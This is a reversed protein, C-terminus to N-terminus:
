LGSALYLLIVKGPPGLKAYYKQYALNGLFVMATRVMVIGIRVLWYTGLRMEFSSDKSPEASFQPMPETGSRGEESPITQQAFVGEAGTVALIPPPTIIPPLPPPKSLEPSAGPTTPEQMTEPHQSAVPADLPLVPLPAIELPRAEPVPAPAAPEAPNLKVELQQPQM